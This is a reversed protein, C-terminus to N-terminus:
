CREETWVSTIHTRWQVYSVVIVGCLVLSLITKWTWIKPTKSFLCSSLDEFDIFVALM